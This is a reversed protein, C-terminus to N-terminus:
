KPKQANRGMRRGRQRQGGNVKALLGEHIRRMRGMDRRYDAVLRAYREAWWGESKLAEVCRELRVIRREYASVVAEVDGPVRYM